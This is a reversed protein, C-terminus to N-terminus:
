GVGRDRCAPTVGRRELLARGAATVAIRDHEIRVFGADLSDEWITLRPCTTRWADMVDRYTRPMVSVWELFDLILAENEM